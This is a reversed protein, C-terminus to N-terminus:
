PPSQSLLLAETNDPQTVATAFHETAVLRAHHRTQRGDTGLRHNGVPVLHGVTQQTNHHFSLAPKTEARHALAVATYELGPHIPQRLSRWAGQRLLAQFQLAQERLQPLMGMDLPQPNREID